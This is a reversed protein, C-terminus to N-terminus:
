QHWLLILDPRLISFPRTIIQGLFWSCLLWKFRRAPLHSQLVRGWSVSLRKLVFLNKKNARLVRFDDDVYVSDWTGSNTLDQFLAFQWQWFRMVTQKKWCCREFEYWILHKLNEVISECHSAISRTKPIITYCTWVEAFASIANMFSVIRWFPRATGICEIRLICARKVKKWKFFGAEVQLYVFSVDIRDPTSQKYNALLSLSLPGLYCWNIYQGPQNAPFEQMICCPELSNDKRSEQLLQVVLYGWGICFRSAAEAKM